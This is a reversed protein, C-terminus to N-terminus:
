RMMIDDVACCSAAAAADPTAGKDPMFDAVGVTISVFALAAPCDPGGGVVRVPGATAVSPTEAGEAAAVLALAMGAVLAFFM